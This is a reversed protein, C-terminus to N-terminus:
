RNLVRIHTIVADGPQWIDTILEFTEANYVRINDGGGGLYLKKGDTSINISYYTKDTPVRKVITNKEIDYKVLENMVMYVYKRDPSVVGSFIMFIPSIEPVLKVNKPFEDRLDIFLLGLYMLNNSTNQSATVIAALESAEYQKWTHLLIQPSYTSNSPNGLGFFGINELDPSFVYLDRGLAYLNKGSNNFFVQFIGKAVEVEKVIKKSKFNIKQIVPPLDIIEDSNWQQRLAITYVIDPDNPSAEVDLARVKINPTNSLRITDEIKEKVFDIKELQQGWDSVVYLKDKDQKSWSISTIKQGLTEIVKVIEERESDVAIVKNHINGQLIYDQASYISGSYLFSLITVIIFTFKINKM